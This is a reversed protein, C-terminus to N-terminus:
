SYRIRPDIVAYLIDAILNFTVVSVGSLVLVAMLTPYDTSDLAQTFLTGIGPWAFVTETVATASAISGLSLAVVTVLPILANRLAHGYIVDREDLGKARATRVYDLKMVDLLSTRLYRSWIAIYQVSLVFAPMILHKIGDEIANLGSLQGADLSGRGFDPLLHLRVAFFEQMILALWFIPVSIGSYALVTILYDQQSYQRTASAVALVIAIILAFLLATLLLELSAPLREGLEATVPRIFTLSVGFNGTLVQQLWSLYQVPLPQNGGFRPGMVAARTSPPLAHVLAFFVVSMMWLVVASQLLRRILYRQMEGHTEKETQGGGIIHRRAFVQVLV